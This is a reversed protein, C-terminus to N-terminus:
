WNCVAQSSGPARKRTHFKKRLLKVRSVLHWPTGWVGFVFRNQLSLTAMGMYKIIVWRLVLEWSKSILNKKTPAALVVKSFLHCGYTSADLKPSQTRTAAHFVCNLLQILFKSLIICVSARKVFSVPKKKNSSTQKSQLVIKMKGKNSKRKTENTGSKRQDNSKPFENPFKM